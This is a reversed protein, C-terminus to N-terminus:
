SATASDGAYINGHALRRRLAEPTMDILEVQEASRVFEDPVIFPEARGVVRTVVDRLSSLHQVKLTAVVDIGADLLDAVDQWRSSRRSGTGNPRELDDVLAVQPARAIVADVDIADVPTGDATLGPLPPVVELGALQAATQPRGHTHAVAVVVDTGRASRRRGEALM